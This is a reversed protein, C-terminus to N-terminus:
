DKKGGVYHYIITTDCKRCVAIVRIKTRSCIILDCNCIPCKARRGAGNFLIM